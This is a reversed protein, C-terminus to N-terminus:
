GAGSGARRIVARMVPGRALAVAQGRANSAASVESTIAVALGLPAHLWLLQGGFGSALYTSGVAGPAVWWGLGYALGVPPGGPSAPTIAAQVFAAPVLPRGQWQGGQLMLAGLKALDATRLRLGVDGRHLGQEDVWWDLSEIGLPQLLQQQAFARLPQGLAAVLAAALLNYAPNDYRFAQGPETEFPRGFAFRAREKADFFGRERGQFGATMTLLHRLTLRQARPDPNADALGPLLSLVTQDLGSLRGQGLAIGVLLSLVSKTVSELPHLTAPPHGNRHYDFVTQGQQQVVVSRVDALTQDIHPALGTFPDTPAPAAPTEPAARQASAPRLGTALAPALATAFLCDRRRM